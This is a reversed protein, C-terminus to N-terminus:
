IYDREVENHRLLTFLEGGMLPEMLFYLYLPDQYLAMLRCCFSGDKGDSSSITAMVARENMIHRQQRNEIVRNKAVKKVSFAAGSLPDRVLLVKGFSGVGLVTIEKLEDLPTTIRNAFPRHFFAWSIQFYQSRKLCWM